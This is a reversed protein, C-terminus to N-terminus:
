KQAIEKLANGYQKNVRSLLDVFEPTVSSKRTKVKNKDVIVLTGDSNKEIIVQSGPKLGAEDLLNKPIIIGTSNGIQIIKQEM